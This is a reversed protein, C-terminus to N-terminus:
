FSQRVHRPNRANRESRHPATWTGTCNGPRTALDEMKARLTVGSAAAAAQDFVVRAARIQKAVADFHVEESRGAKLADVYQRLADAGALMADAIAPTIMRRSDVLIQLPDELAATGIIDAILARSYGGQTLDGKSRPHPLQCGGAM